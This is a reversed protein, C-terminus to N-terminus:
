RPHVSPVIRHLVDDLEEFDFPKRLIAVAGFDLAMPLLDVNRGPMGGSMVVTPVPHASKRIASLVEFGDMGPMYLDLLIAVPREQALVALAEEAEAFITRYGFADLAGSLADRAAEDDDILLILPRVRDDGQANVGPGGM